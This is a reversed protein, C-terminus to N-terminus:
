KKQMLEDSDVPRMHRSLARFYYRQLDPMAKTLEAPPIDGGDVALAPLFLTIPAGDVTKSEVTPGLTLVGTRNPVNLSKALQSVPDRGSKREALMDEQHRELAAM